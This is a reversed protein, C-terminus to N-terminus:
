VAGGDDAWRDLAAKREVQSKRHERQTKEYSGIADLIRALFRLDDASLQAIDIRSLLAIEGGSSLQVRRWRDPTKATRTM